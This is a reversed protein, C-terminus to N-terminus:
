WHHWEILFNNFFPPKNIANQMAFKLVKSLQFIRPLGNSPIFSKSMYETPPKVLRQTKIM